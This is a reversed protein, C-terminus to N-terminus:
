TMEGDALARGIVSRHHPAIVLTAFRAVLIDLLEAIGPFTSVGAVAFDRSHVMCAISAEVGVQILLVIQFIRPMAATALAALVARGSARHVISDFALADLVRGVGLHDVFQYRSPLALGLPAGIFSRVMSCRIAAANVAFMM